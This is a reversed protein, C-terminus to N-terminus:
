TRLMQWPRRLGLHSIQNAGLGAAAHLDDISADALIVPASLIELVRLLVRSRAKLFTPAVRFVRLVPFVPFALFVPFLLIARVM